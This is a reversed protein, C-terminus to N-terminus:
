SRVRGDNGWEGTLLSRTQEVAVQWLARMEDDSRQYYGGFNGDGLYERLAKPDLVRLKALDIMPRQTKPM